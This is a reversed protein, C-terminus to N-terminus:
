QFILEPSLTEAQAFIQKKRNLNKMYDNFFAKCLMKADKYEISNNIFEKFKNDIFRSKIKHCKKHVAQFNNMCHGGNLYWPICHDVEWDWQGVDIKEYCLACKNNQIQLLESHKSLSLQKERTRKPVHKVYCIISNHIIDKKKSNSIKKRKKCNSINERKKKKISKQPVKKPEPKSMDLYRKFYQSFEHFMEKTKQSAKNNEIKDLVFGWNSYQKKNNKFWQGSKLLWKFKIWDHYLLAYDITEFPGFCCQKDINFNIYYENKFIKIGYFAMGKINKLGLPKKCSIKMFDENFYCKRIQNNPYKINDTTLIIKNIDDISKIIKRDRNQVIIMEGISFIPEEYNIPEAEPQEYKETWKKIFEKKAIKIRYLCQIKVINDIDEVSFLDFDLQKNNMVKKNMLKNFFSFM